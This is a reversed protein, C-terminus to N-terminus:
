AQSIPAATTTRSPVEPSAPLATSLAALEQDIAAMERRIEPSTVANEQDTGLRIELRAAIRALQDVGLTAGTGKLTHALRRAAVRDGDALRAALHSMDGAHSEVFCRLLRLYKGANGSLLALGRAVDLGPVAALGTLDIDVSPLSSASVPAPLVFEGGHESQDEKSYATRAPLWKLLAAYLLAPEAPKVVFDDMGADLCARRDDDFANATM